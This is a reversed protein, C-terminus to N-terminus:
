MTKPCPAARISWSSCRGEREVSEVGDNATRAAEVLNQKKGDRLKAVEAQQRQVVERVDVEMESRGKQGGTDKLGGPPNTDKQLKEEQVAPELSDAPDGDQALKRKIDSFEHTAEKSEEYAGKLETEVNGM